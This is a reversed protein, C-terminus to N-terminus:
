AARSGTDARHYRDSGELKVIKNYIGILLFSPAWLGVFTGLSKKEEPAFLAIGASLVMSGVALSFYGLSPVKATQEEIKRSLTGESQDFRGAFENVRETVKRSQEKIRSTSLKESNSTSSNTDAM